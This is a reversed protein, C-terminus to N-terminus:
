FKKKKIDALKQKIANHALPLSTKLRFKYYYYYYYTM